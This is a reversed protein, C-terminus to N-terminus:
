TQSINEDLVDHCSVSFVAISGKNEPQAMIAQAQDHTKQHLEKMKQVGDKNLGEVMYHIYGKNQSKDTYDEDTKYEDVLFMAHKKLLALSLITNKKKNVLQCSGSPNKALIGARILRNLAKTGAQGLRNKINEESVGKGLAALAWCIFTNKDTLIQETDQGAYHKGERITIKLASAAEPSLRSQLESLPLQTNKNAESPLNIIENLEESLSTKLEPIFRSLKLMTEMNPKSYGNILRNFTTPPINMKKSLVAENLAPNAKRQQILFERLVDSVNENM